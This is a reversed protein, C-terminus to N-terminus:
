VKSFCCNHLSFSTIQSSWFGKAVPDSTNSNNAVVCDSRRSKVARALLAENHGNGYADATDIFNVGIDLAHRLTDGVATIVKWCWQATASPM